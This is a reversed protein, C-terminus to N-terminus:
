ASLFSKLCDVLRRNEAELRTGVRVYGVLGFSACDRLQIGRTRLFGLVRDKLDGLRVLFFNTSTPLVELGLGLLDSRFSERLEALRRWSAEFHRRNALLALGAAQAPGGINWPPKVKALTRILDAHALLYGLRLGPVSYDKTMSRLLLCNRGATLGTSSWASGVFGVYAEDVILLAGCRECEELLSGIVKQTCYVGTPNDPNCLWVLKPRRQRIRRCLVESDPRFGHGEECWFLDVRSDMIRCAAQYEGYTPCVILSEDGPEAFALPVMRIGESVGHTMLVNEPSCEIRDAVARRLRGAMCDPYRVIDASALAEWVEGPPPFPNVSVSFDLVAEPSEGSRELEDYRFCSHHGPELSHM